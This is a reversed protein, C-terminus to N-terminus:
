LHAIRPAVEALLPWDGSEVVCRAFLWQLLRETDLELRGAMGEVLTRPDRRLRGDCNLIHQLADYTPDGVFPKPDIVLWPERQSALVNGAHLDTSLLVHRAATAPLSRFLAVGDRVLGADLPSADPAYAAEFEDAWADCMAQLPRFPHTAGPDLWLRPLLEAIVADQEPESRASLATGPLCRELLLAVHGERADVAHLLVAGSGNWARLGDAEHEAEFHPWLVKLVLEDGTPGRAPAVWATQGGPEYPEDVELGWDSAIARVVSPLSALWEEHGGRQCSEVLAAPVRLRM